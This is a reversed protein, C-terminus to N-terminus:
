AFTKEDGGAVMSIAGEVPDAYLAAGTGARLAALAAIPTTYTVELSEPAPGFGAEGDQTWGTMLATRLGPRESDPIVAASRRHAPLSEPLQAEAMLSVAAFMEEAPGTPVGACRAVTARGPAVVVVRRTGHREAAELVAPWPDTILTRAEVIAGREQRELVVMRWREGQRHLAIARGGGGRPAHAKGNPQGSLQSM